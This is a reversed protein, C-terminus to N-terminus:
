VATRAAASGSARTASKGPFPNTQRWREGLREAYMSHSGGYYYEFAPQMSFTLGLAAARKRQLETTLEAHEIRHRLYVNGTKQRAYEHAILAQEMARNGVAHLSTDLDALYCRLLFSNLEEQSYNLTGNGPHDEYNSLLAANGSAFSGDLFLDGIRSLGLRKVKEPSTTGFYIPLIWRCNQGAPPWFNGRGVGPFGYGGEM